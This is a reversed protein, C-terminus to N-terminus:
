RATGSLALADITEFPAIAADFSQQDEVTWTGALLRLGNSPTERPLGLAAKLLDMAVEEVPRGSRKQEALLAAELEAPVHDLVLTSVPGGPM